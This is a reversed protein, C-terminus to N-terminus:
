LWRRVLLYLGWVIALASVVALAALAWFLMALAHVGRERKSDPVVCVTTVWPLREQLSTTAIRAFSLVGESGRQLSALRLLGAEISDKAASERHVRRPAAKAIGQGSARLGERHWNRSRACLIGQPHADKTQPM